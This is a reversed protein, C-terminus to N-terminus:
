PAVRRHPAWSTPTTSRCGSNMRPFCKGLKTLTSPRNLSALHKMVRPLPRPPRLPPTPLRRGTIAAAAYIPQAAAMVLVVAVIVVVRNLGM